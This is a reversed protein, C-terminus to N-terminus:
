CESHYLRCRWMFNEYVYKEGDIYKIDGECPEILDRSAKKLMCKQMKEYYCIRCLGEGGKVWRTPKPLRKIAAFNITTTAYLNGIHGNMPICRKCSSHKCSGIYEYSTPSNVVDEECVYCKFTNETM